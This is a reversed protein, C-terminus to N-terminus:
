LPTLRTFYRHFTGYLQLEHDAQLGRLLDAHRNRGVNQDSGVFYNSLLSFPHTVLKPSLIVRRQAEEIRRHAPPDSQLRRRRRRLRLISLDASRSRQQDLHHDQLNEHRLSAARRRLHRLSVTKGTQGIQMAYPVWGADVAARSAGVAGGLLEALDKLMAFNEEGKLGRGGAVVMKAGELQPGERKVVVREKVHVKRLTEDSAAAVEEVVVPQENVKPEFSKPRVLLLKTGPSVLTSTNQYSAGLAPITAEVSGDKLQFDGVDSIAGCDLRASLNAVLDRGAYSSACLLVAPQHKQILGAVTEAAPLTLYERYVPDACHYIKSAGHKALTQAADAPAPGLLIAEAKGAEAAKALMELTTATIKDDVIEAYVWVVDAM